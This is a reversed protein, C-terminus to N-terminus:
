LTLHDKTIYKYDGIMNLSGTINPKIIIDGGKFSITIAKSCQVLSKKIAMAAVACAGSGCANTEGTGREWVRVKIHNPAIINAFEVNTKEPFLPHNELFPGIEFFENDEIDYNIFTILHPNGINVVGFEWNEILPHKIRFTMSKVERKLPIQRWNFRPIGMNVAIKDGEKKCELVDEDTEISVKNKFFEKMALFAVCRSANGCAGVRSGDNNFIEIALDAKISPKLVIFQDCKTQEQSSINKIQKKSFEYKKRRSDIITFINGAGSMKIYEINPM